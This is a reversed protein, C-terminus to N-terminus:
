PVWPSSRAPYFARYKIHRIYIHSMLPDAKAMRRFLALAAFWISLGFAAALWTMIVFCCAACLLGVSLILERECGMFLGPRHLSRRVPSRDLAM